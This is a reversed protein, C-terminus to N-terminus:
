KNWILSFLYYGSPLKERFLYRQSFDTDRIFIMMEGALDKSKSDGTGVASNESLTNKFLDSVM